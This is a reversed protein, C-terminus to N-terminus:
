VAWVLLESKTQIASQVKESATRQGPSLTGDWQLPSEEIKITPAPGTWQYLPTCTSVRGMMICNRCYTCEKQCKACPFKAFLHTATNGCRECKQTTIGPTSSIYGNKEHLTILKQPFPIENQLLKRGTLFTQLESPFEASM